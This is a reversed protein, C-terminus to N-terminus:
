FFGFSVCVQLLWFFSIHVRVGTCSLDGGRVGSGPFHVLASSHLFFCQFLAVFARSFLAYVPASILLLDEVFPSTFVFLSTLQSLIFFPFFDFALRVAGPCVICLAFFFCLRSLSLTTFAFIVPPLTLAPPFDGVHDPV